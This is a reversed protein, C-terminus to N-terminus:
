GGQIIEQVKGKLNYSCYENWAKIRIFLQKKDRQVANVSSQHNCLILASNNPM